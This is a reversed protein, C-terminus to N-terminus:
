EGANRNKELPPISQLSGFSPPHLSFLDSRLSFATQAACKLLGCGSFHSFDIYPMILKQFKLMNYLM